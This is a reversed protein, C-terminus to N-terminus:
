MRYSETHRYWTEGLVLIVVLDDGIEPCTSELMIKHAWKWDGPEWNNPVIKSCFLIYHWFLVESYVSFVLNRRLYCQLRSYRIKFCIVTNSQRKIIHVKNRRVLLKKGLRSTTSQYERTMWPWASDLPVSWKTSQLDVFYFTFVGMVFRMDMERWGEQQVM